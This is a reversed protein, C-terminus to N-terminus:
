VICKNVYDNFCCNYELVLAHLNKLGAKESKYILTCEFSIQNKQNGRNLNFAPGLITKHMTKWDFSDM